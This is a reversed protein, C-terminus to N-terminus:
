KKQWIFTYDSKLSSNWRSTCCRFSDNQAFKGQIFTKKLLITASFKGLILFTGGKRKKQQKSFKKSFTHQFVRALWGMTIDCTAVLVPGALWTLVRRLGDTDAQPEDLYKTTSSAFVSINNEKRLLGDRALVSWHFRPHFFCFDLLPYFISGTFFFLSWHTTKNSFCVVPPASRRM